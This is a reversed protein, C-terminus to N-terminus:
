YYSSPVAVTLFYELSPEWHWYFRQQYEALITSPSPDGSCVYKLEIVHTEDFIKQGMQSWQFISQEPKDPVEYTDDLTILNRKQSSETFYDYHHTEVNYPNVPPLNTFRRVSPGVKETEIYDPTSIEKNDVVTCGIVIFEVTFSIVANGYMARFRTESTEDVTPLYSFSPHQEVTLNQYSYM